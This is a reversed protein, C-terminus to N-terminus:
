QVVEESVYAPDFTLPVFVGYTIKVQFYTAQSSSPIAIKLRDWGGTTTFTTSSGYTGDRGTYYTVTQSASSTKLPLVFFRVYNPRTDGSLPISFELTSTPSSRTGATSDELWLVGSRDGSVLVTNNNIVSTTLANVTGFKITGSWIQAISQTTQSTRISWSNTVYNYIFINTSNGIIWVEQRLSYTRVQNFTYALNANLQDQISPGPYAQDSVDYCISGDFIYVHKDAGVFILRGDPLHDVANPGSAGIGEVVTILPGLTVAGSITLTQTSLRGISYTKFIILDSGLASFAALQDGDSKRFYLTNAATWTLGDAVNSWSILSSPPNNGFTGAFLFNNVVKIINCNAPSGGGAAAINGAGSWQFLGNGDGYFLIANLIDFQGDANIGAAGTIDTMTGGTNQLMYIKSHANDVMVFYEATNTKNYYSINTFSGGSVNGIQYAGNRLVLTNGVIQFNDCTLIQGPPVTGPSTRTNVGGQYTLQKTPM